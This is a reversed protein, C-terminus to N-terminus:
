EIELIAGEFCNVGTYDENKKRMMFVRNDGDKDVPTWGLKPVKDLTYTSFGGSPPQLRLRVFNGKVLEENWRISDSEWVNVLAKHSNADEVKLQYYKKNNRSNKLENSLIEVEVPSSSAGLAIDQEYKEFTLGSYHESKELPHIWLFTYYEEESHEITYFFKEKESNEYEEVVDEMSIEKIIEKEKLKFTNVSRKWRNWIDILEEHKSSDVFAALRGMFMEDANAEMIRPMGFLMELGIDTGQMLDSFEDGLEQMRKEFRSNRSSQKNKFSKFREYYNWIIMPNEKFARLCILPLVVRSDTGFRMLFDQFSEYPANEEIRKAVEHGIGKVKSLGYYIKSDHIKFKSGSVNLDIKEIQINHMKADNMYDKVKILDNEGSLTETYFELPYHAKLWLLMSSIYTYAVSHSKNFGYASFAEIQGWLEELYEKPQNLNIQGRRIFQEKYHQFKDVKKKSIAKRVIECDKLPIDGVINLVQMINEQYVMVGYTNDLASKLLSPIEYDEDGNKRKYYAEHMKKSLPGPRYLASYAVLDDFRNVGGERCLKRIGESDFQFIGKLDGRNAMDLAKPDELFSLDTWDDQGPLAMISKLGHREKILNVILAIRFLDTIVLLDFKILGVPQLDQDHLGETWASVQDGEKGLCLPVLEDIPSSSVILGGAHKGMGRRRDILIRAAEAVEPNATCYSQLDPHLELAKEWTLTKGDDDKLGIKTTLSLIEERSKGHVRVMDILASKIGFTTYNGISCVNREGFQQRAWINKLYDRVEPLFDTDIDPFEGMEYKPSQGIDFSPVLGLLYPVLLNNENVSWKLGDKVAELFYIEENQNSIEEIEIKLREKYHENLLGKIQM